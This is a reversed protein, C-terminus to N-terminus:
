SKNSGDSCYLPRHSHEIRIISISANSRAKAPGKMGVVFIDEDKVFRRYAEVWLLWSRIRESRPPPQQSSTVGASEADPARVSNSSFHLSRALNTLCIRHLRRSYTQEPLRMFSKARHTRLFLPSVLVITEIRPISSFLGMALASVLRGTGGSSSLVTRRCSWCSGKEDSRIFRSM